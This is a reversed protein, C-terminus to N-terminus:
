GNEKMWRDLDARSILWSGGPKYAPLGHQKIYRRVTKVSVGLYEATQATTMYGAPPQPKLRFKKKKQM